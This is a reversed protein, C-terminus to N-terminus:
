LNMLNQFEMAAAIREEATPEPEPQPANIIDEIAQIAEDESLEDPINHMQRLANLNMVAQCVDGNIELVHVFHEVAPFDNKIRESTAVEGNPFMYVKGESYKELRLM